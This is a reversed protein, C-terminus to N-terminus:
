NPLARESEIVRELLDIVYDPPKRSGDEWSEITRRPIGYKAAFKVQSLGTKVRLEKVTM